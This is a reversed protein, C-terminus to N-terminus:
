SGKRLNKWRRSLKRQTKKRHLQGLSSYIKRTEPSFTYRLMAAQYKKDKAALESLLVYDTWKEKWSLFASYREVGLDLAPPSLKTTNNKDGM